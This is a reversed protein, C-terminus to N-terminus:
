IEGSSEENWHRFVGKKLHMCRDWWEVDQIGRLMRMMEQRSMTQMRLTVSVMEAPDLRDKQARNSANRKCFVLAKAM